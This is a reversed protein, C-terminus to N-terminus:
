SVGRARRECLFQRAVGLMEFRNLREAGSFEKFFVPQQEQGRRLDAPQGSLEFDGRRQDFDHGAIGAHPSQGARQFGPKGADLASLTLSSLVSRGKLRIAWVTSFTNFVPEAVNEQRSSTLSLGRVSESRRAKM